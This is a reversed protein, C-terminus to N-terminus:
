GLLAAWLPPGLVLFGIAAAGIAALLVAAAAADKADRVLPHQEPVAADALREIATNLAECTWVAMMALVLWCWSSRPLDLALGLAIVLASALAHIRANHQSEVVRAIGRLAFGFSRLRNYLSFSENV